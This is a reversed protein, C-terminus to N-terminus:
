TLPVAPVPVLYTASVGAATVIAITLTMTDGAVSAGVLTASTIIEDLQTVGQNIQGLIQPVAQMFYNNADVPTRVRGSQVAQLFLCGISQNWATGRITFLAAVFAQTAKQIGAVVRPVGYSLPVKQPVTGLTASDVDMILVDVKRGTYDTSTNRGM